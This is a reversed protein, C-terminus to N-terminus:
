DSPEITDKGSPYAHWPTVLKTEVDQTVPLVIRSPFFQRSTMRPIEIRQTLSLDETVNDEDANVSPSKHLGPAEDARDVNIKNENGDEFIM